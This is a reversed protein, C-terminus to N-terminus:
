KVKYKNIISLVNFYPKIFDKKGTKKIFKRIKKENNLYKNFIKKLINNIKKNDKYNKFIKNSEELYNKLLETNYDLSEDNKIVKTLGTLLANTFLMAEIVQRSEKKENKYLDMVIKAADLYVKHKEGLSNILSGEVQYYYYLVDKILCYNKARLKLEHEFVLDEYRRLDENFLLGKILKVDILKGTVYSSKTLMEINDKNGLVLDEKLPKHELFTKNNYIILHYDDVIDSDYKIAKEVLIKVMDKVIYDDSDMFIVYDGSVSKLGINRTKSVGQNIESYFPKIRNDKLAYQKIIDKSNDTSADDILIIELNEYSQNLISEISRSLYESANYIPVIFSVKKNM